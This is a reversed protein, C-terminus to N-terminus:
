RGIKSRRHAHRAHRQRRACFWAEADEHWELFLNGELLSCGDQTRAKFWWSGAAASTETLECSRGDDLVLRDGPAPRRMQM